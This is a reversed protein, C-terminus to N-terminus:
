ETWLVRNSVVQFQMKEVVESLARLSKGSSYVGLTFGREHGVIAAIDWPEAEARELATVFNKRFSHFGVRERTVGVARRHVTFARTM